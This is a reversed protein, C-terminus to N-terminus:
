RRRRGQQREERHARRGPGPKQPQGGDLAAVQLRDHGPRQDGRDDECDDDLDALVTDLGAQPRLLLRGAHFTALRDLCPARSPLEGGFAREEPDPGAVVLEVVELRGVAQRPRRQPDHM